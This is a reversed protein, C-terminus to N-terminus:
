RIIIYHFSILRMTTSPINPLIAESWKNIVNQTNLYIFYLWIVLWNLQSNQFPQAGFRNFNGVFHATPLAWPCGQSLEIRNLNSWYICPCFVSYSFYRSALSMTWHSRVAQLLHKYRECNFEIIKLSHM